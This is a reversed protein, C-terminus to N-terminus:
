KATLPKPVFLYGYLSQGADKAIPGFIEAIFVRFRSAGPATTAHAFTHVNTLVTANGTSDIETVAWNLNGYVVNGPSEVGSVQWVAALRISDATAESSIVTLTVPETGRGALWFPKGNPDSIEITDNVSINTSSTWYYVTVDSYEAIKTVTASKETAYASGFLLLSLAVKLFKM